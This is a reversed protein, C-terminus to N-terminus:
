SMGYLLLTVYLLACIEEFVCNKDNQQQDLLPPITPPKPGGYSLLWEIVQQLVM